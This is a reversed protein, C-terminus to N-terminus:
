RERWWGRASRDERVEDQAVTEYVALVRATVASWDYRGVVGAAAQALAATGATDRLREVVARALDAPDGVAFLTGLRGEDLVRRFAGLDSAVVGAGASMAEILVVGFSEGGTQPAIYLDVSALLRAKDEDSIPGLIELAGADDGLGKTAVEGRGAVLVRVGGCARRIEPLARLLVDL